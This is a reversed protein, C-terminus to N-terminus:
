RVRSVSFELEQYSASGMIVYAVRVDVSNDRQVIDVAIRGIRPELIGLANVISEKIRHGMLPDNAEFLMGRLNAGFNPKFPREYHNTLLINKVSQRIANADKKAVIDETVPHATFNLDLDAFSDKDSVISAGSNSYDRTAM